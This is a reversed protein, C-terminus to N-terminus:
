QAARRGSPNIARVLETFVHRKYDGNGCNVASAASPAIGSAIGLNYMKTDRYGTTCDINRALLNIRVAMVNSWDTSTLPNTIYSDPYGDGNVDYEAIGM